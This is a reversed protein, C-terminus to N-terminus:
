GVCRLGLMTLDAVIHGHVPLVMRSRIHRRPRRTSPPHGVQRTEQDADPSEFAYDTMTVIRRRKQKASDAPEADSEAPSEIILLAACNFSVASADFRFTTVDHGVDVSRSTSHEKDVAAGKIVKVEARAM